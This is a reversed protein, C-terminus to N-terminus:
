KAPLWQGRAVAQAQVLRYPPPATVQQKSDRVRYKSHQRKSLSQLFTAADHQVAQDAQLCTNFSCCARPKSSGGRHQLICKISEAGAAQRKKPTTHLM